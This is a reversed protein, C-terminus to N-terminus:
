IDEYMITGFLQEDTPQTSPIEYAVWTYNLLHKWTVNESVSNGGWSGCGLTMSMPMGNTWAGSNALCQPQRIMIRSVKVRESLRKIRMEDFTHIGCSHGPGSFTTIRNVLDIAEDFEKYKYITTTVSLKEASFPYGKGVGTEPIM